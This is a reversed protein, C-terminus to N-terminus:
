LEERKKCNHKRLLNSIHCKVTRIAIGLHRAIAENRMGGRVLYLIRDESVTLPGRPRVAIRMKIVTQIAHANDLHEDRLRILEDITLKDLEEHV